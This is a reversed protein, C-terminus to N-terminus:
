AMPNDSSRPQAPGLVSEVFCCAADLASRFVPLFPLQLFGHPTNEWVALDHVVGTHTLSRDLQLTQELLPDKAGVSLHCPPFTECARIPSVRPDGQLSYFEDVPLYLQEDPSAGGLIPALVPLAAHFDYIGYFLLAASVQSSLRQNTLVAGTLNAGASDGAIVIRGPEQGYERAKEPLAELAYACDDAAAPFRHKPARRYDLLATFYGRRAFEVGIGRHTYSSGMVWGGGHLYLLLTSAPESSPFYFDSRLEWDSTSRLPINRVVRIGSSEINMLDDAHRLLELPAIGKPTSFSEMFTVLATTLEDKTLENM